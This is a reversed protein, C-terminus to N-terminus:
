QGSRPLGIAENFLQLTDPFRDEAEPCGFVGILFTQGRYAFASLLCSGASPTQGTKLGLAYPCYYESAPDILVNTNKWTKTGGSELVVDAHSVGAYKMITPDRLALEGIVALDAYTTYHSDKHIGDPNAFNTGTLGLSQAQSNMEAVFRNSAAGASMGPDGAIVRGAEAALVYAADNGSPLLMAEVLLEVTLADGEALEAVSSGPVVLDLADGVTIVTEPKLYQLAVYATFLKTVSAPYVRDGASGSMTLFTGSDPSYVFYQKATLARDAPFTMWTPEPETTEPPATTGATTGATTQAPDPQDDPGSCRSLILAFIMIIVLVLVGLVALRQLQRIRRRRRARQARRARAAKSLRRPRNTENAEM